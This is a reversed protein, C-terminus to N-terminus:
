FAVGRCNFSLELTEMIQNITMGTHNKGGLLSIQVIIRIIQFM